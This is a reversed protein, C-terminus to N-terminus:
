NKFRKDKKPEIEETEVEKKPEIEIYEFGLDDTAGNMIDADRQSISVTRVTAGENFKRGGIVQYRTCVQKFLPM